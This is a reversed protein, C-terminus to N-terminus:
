GRRTQREDGMLLSFLEMVRSGTDSRLALVGEKSLGSLTWVNCDISRLVQSDNDGWILDHALAQAIHVLASELQYDLASGPEHHYRLSTQISEPLGWSRALEYGIETHDFGLVERESQVLLESQGHAILLIERAQTTLHRLIVLRGIDHLVGIVFLREPHMIGTQRAMAQAMVGTAVSCHWFDGMNFLEAPIGQFLDCSATMLALNALEGTGVLTVARSITDVPTSLGYWASNVLRLLRASLDADQIIVDGMDRASSRPDQILENIRICADPLAVLQQINHVLQEATETTM